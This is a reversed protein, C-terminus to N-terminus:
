YWSMELFLCCWALKLLKPRNLATNEADDEICLRVFNNQNEEFYKVVFNDFNASNTEIFCLVNLITKM